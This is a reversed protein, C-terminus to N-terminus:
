NQIIASNSAAAEAIKSIRGNQNEPTPCFSIPCCPLAPFFSVLPCSLYPATFLWTLTTPEFISKYWISEFFKFLIYSAESKNMNPGNFNLPWKPFIEALSKFEVTYKRNIKLIIVFWISINYQTSCEPLFLWVIWFTVSVNRM